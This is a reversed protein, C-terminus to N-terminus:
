CADGDWGRIEGWGWPDVDVGARSIGGCKCDSGRWYPCLKRDARRVQSATLTGDHTRVVAKTSHFNNYLTITTM